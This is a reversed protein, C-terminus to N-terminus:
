GGTTARATTAATSSREPGSPYMFLYYIEAVWVNGIFLMVLWALTAVASRQSRVDAVMAVWLLIAALVGVGEVFFLLFHAPAQLHHSWDAAPRVNTLVLNLTFIYSLLFVPRYIRKRRHPSGPAIFLKLWAM